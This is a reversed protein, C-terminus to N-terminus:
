DAQSSGPSPSPLRWGDEMRRRVDVNSEEGLLAERKWHYRALRQFTTTEQKNNTVGFIEDLATPFDIEVTWWRERPDDGSAWSDDLQIERHARILSVGM